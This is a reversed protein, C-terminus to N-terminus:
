KKLGVYIDLITNQYDKAREDYIEFDAIYARDGGLEEKNMLWIKQWAQICVGPMPGPGNTIKSYAQSPINLKYLGEPAEAKDDVVEGILYTYLGTFDTEYEAYAFYNIGPKIRGPIKACIGEQFYRGVTPVIQSTVPNSELALSTRAKLGILSFSPLTILDM